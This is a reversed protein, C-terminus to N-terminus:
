FLFLILNDYIDKIYKLNITMKPIENLKNSANFVDNKEFLFYVIEGFTYIDTSLSFSTNHIQEPPSYLYSCIDVSFENEAFNEKENDFLRITEFDSIYAKGDHDILINSPKLDRHVLSHKNLYTIGEFIRCATTFTFIENNFQKKNKNLYKDLSDNCMFQYITAIIENDKKIYGYCKTFYQSPHNSLFNCFEIEHTTVNKKNMKM